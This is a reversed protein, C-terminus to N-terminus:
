RSTFCLCGQGPNSNLDGIGNKAIIVTVCDTEDCERRLTITAKLQM